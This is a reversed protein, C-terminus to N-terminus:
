PSVTFRHARTSAVIGASLADVRWFYSRGRELRVDSPLTLTTDVTESSWLATGDETLLRFSYRDASTSRWVFGPHAGLGEAGNAPAVVALRPIREDLAPQAADRTRREVNTLPEDVNGLSVPARRLVLVGAVSAALAMGIAVIPFRRRRRTSHSVGITPTGATSAGLVEVADGLARRCMACRELHAEVRPREDTELEGDLFAALVSDSPHDTPEVGFADSPHPM